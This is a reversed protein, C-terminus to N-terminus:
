LVPLTITGSAVEGAKTEYAYEFTISNENGATNDSLYALSSYKLLARHSDPLASATMIASYLNDTQLSENEALAVRVVERVSQLEGNKVLEYQASDVYSTNDNVLSLQQLTLTQLRNISQPLYLYVSRDYDSPSAAVGATNTAVIPSGNTTYSHNDLALDNIDFEEESVLATTTFNIGDDSGLDVRQGSAKVSIAGVTYTYNTDASLPSAPTLTLQTDKLSLTATVDVYTGGQIVTTGPLVTDSTSDSGKVVKVGQQNYLTFTSGTIDVPQSYFVSLINSEVQAPNNATVVELDTGLLTTYRPQVVLDLVEADPIMYSNNSNAYTNVSLRGDDTRSVTLNTSLYQVEDNIFAPINLSVQQDFGVTAVFQSTAEDFVANVQEAASQAQVELDQLVEGNLDLVSLRLEVDMVVKDEIPALYIEDLDDVQHSRIYISTGAIYTTDEPEFDLRADRDADLSAIIDVDLYKPVTITYVGNVGDFTSSHYFDAATVGDFYNSDAIFELDEVPMNTQSNSVSITVETAESVAFTGYDKTAEGSTSSGTNLYFARTLFSDDASSIVIQIDSNAPLGAVSFIGDTIVVQDAYIESLTSVTITANALPSNDFADVVLGSVKVTNTSQSQELQETLIQNQQQVAATLENNSDDDVEICGNLVLLSSLLVPFHSRSPSFKM